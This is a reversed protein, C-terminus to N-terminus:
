FPLEPLTFPVTPDRVITPAFSNAVLLMTVVAPIALVLSLRGARALRSSAPMVQGVAVGLSILANVAANMRQWLALAVRVQPARVLNFNSVCGCNWCRQVPIAPDFHVLEACCPCYRIKLKM